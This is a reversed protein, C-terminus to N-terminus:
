KKRLEVLCALLHDVVANLRINEARLSALESSAVNNDFVATHQQETHEARSKSQDETEVHTTRHDDDDDEDTTTIANSLSVTNTEVTPPVVDPSRECLEVVKHHGNVRAVQAATWHKKNQAHVDAGHEILVRVVDIAGSLSAWHLPTDGADDCVNVRADFRLLCQVSELCGADSAHHLPTAATGDSCNVHARWSPEQSLLLHLCRPSSSAAWHLLSPNDLQHVGGCTTGESDTAGSSQQLLSAFTDVDDNDLASQLAPSLM